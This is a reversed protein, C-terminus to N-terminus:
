LRTSLNRAQIQQVPQRESGLIQCDFPSGNAELYKAIAKYRNEALGYRTGTIQLEECILYLLENLGVSFDETFYPAPSVAM